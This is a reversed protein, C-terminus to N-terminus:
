VKWINTSYVVHFPSSPPFPMTNKYCLFDRVAHVFRRVLLFIIIIFIYVCFPVECKKKGMTRKKRKSWKIKIFHKECLCVPRILHHNRLRRGECEYIWKFSSLVFQLAFFKMKFLTSASKRHWPPMSALYILPLLPFLYLSLFKFFPFSTTRWPTAWNLFLIFYFWFLSSSIAANSM